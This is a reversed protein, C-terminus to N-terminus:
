LKSTKKKALRQKRSLRRAPGKKRTTPQWGAGATNEAIGEQDAYHVMALRDEFESVSIAAAGHAEANHAVEADSSVVLVRQSERAVIRKIVADALEGQRSYRVTIGKLRASRPLGVPAETGDFVVTIKHPKYKKYAALFDVLHDRGAQLSQQELASFRGSQRILNYGDIVIHLSM